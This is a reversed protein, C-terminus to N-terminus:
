LVLAVLLTAACALAIRGGGPIRPPAEDAILRQVRDDLLGRRGLLQGVPARVPRISRRFRQAKVIAGVLASPDHTVRVALEDCALEEERDLLPGILAAAPSMWRAIRAWLPACGERDRAVVVHGLEHAVVADLEADELAALLEVPIEIVPRGHPDITAPGRASTSRYAPTPLDAPVACRFCPGDRRTIERTAAAVRAVSSALRDDAARGEGSDADADVSRLLWSHWLLVVGAWVVLYPAITSPGLAGGRLADALVPPRTLINGIGAMVLTAKVLAGGLLWSRTRADRIGLLRSVTLATLAVLGGALVSAGLNFVAFRLLDGTM